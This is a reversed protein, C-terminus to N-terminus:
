RVAMRSVESMIRQHETRISQWILNRNEPFCQQFMQAISMSNALARPLRREDGMEYFRHIFRPFTTRQLMMDPYSRLMRTAVVSDAIGERRKSPIPAFLKPPDSTDGMHEHFPPTSDASARFGWVDGISSFEPCNISFEFQPTL